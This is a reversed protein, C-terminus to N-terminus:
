LEGSQQMMHGFPQQPVTEIQQLPLSGRSHILHCPLLILRSHLGADWVKVFPNMPSGLARLWRSAYIYWFRVPPLTRQPYRRQLVLDDLLGHYRDQVSDVLLVEHSKGVPVARTLFRM